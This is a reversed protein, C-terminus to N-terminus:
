HVGLNAVLWIVYFIVPLGFVVLMAWAVVRHYTRGSDLHGAFDLLAGDPVHHTLGIRRAEEPMRTGPFWYPPTPDFAPDDPDPDEDFEDQRIGPMLGCYAARTASFM